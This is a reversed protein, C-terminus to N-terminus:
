GAPGVPREGQRDGGASQPEDTAPRRKRDRRKRVSGPRHRGPQGAATGTAAPEESGRRDEKEAPAVAETVEILQLTTEYKNPSGEKNDAVSLKYRISAGPKLGLKELDLTEVAKFEPKPEQDELLDKNILTQDNALVVLNATRVGHDDSGTAVLDVKVNLPVKIAPNDPQLFRATPPRDPISDIDYTVPSPNLQGGTTKFTITYSGRKEPPPVKFTGKLIKADGSDVEMPIPNASSSVNLTAVVAPMNTQAHVTVMTGELAQVTGGEIGPRPPIKTYKPFDLDHSISTITPAPLVKLHYQDSEADGGTLYYDMSQQVNTYTYSWPDFRHNGAALERVAFFKGGDVSFHLMVTRPLNGQVDVSFVVHTGAVVQALEPESGPKIHMLRTNTPRSLDALFARRTSDLISKPTVAAYVCFVVIVGSLAYFTRMLRQQNM